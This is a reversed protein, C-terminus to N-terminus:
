KSLTDGTLIQQLHVLPQAIHIVDGNKSGIGQGDEQIVIQLLYAFKERVCFAMKVECSM